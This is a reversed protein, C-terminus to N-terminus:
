GGLGGKPKRDYTSRGELIQVFAENRNNARDVLRDFAIVEIMLNMNQYYRYAMQGGYNTIVFDEIKLYNELDDNWDALIYGRVMRDSPILKERGGSTKVRGKKRIDSIQNKLQSVPNNTTGESEPSFGTKQPRKMEVIM